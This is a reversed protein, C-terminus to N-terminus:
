DGILLTTLKLGLESRAALSNSTIDAHCVPDSTVGTCYSYMHYVGAVSEITEDLLASSLICRSNEITTYDAVAMSCVIVKAITTACSSTAISRCNRNCAMDIHADFSM